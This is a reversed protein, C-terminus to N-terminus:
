SLHTLYHTTVLNLEALAYDHTIPLSSLQQALVQTAESGDGLVARLVGVVVRSMESVCLRHVATECKLNNLRQCLTLLRPRLLELKAATPEGTKKMENVLSCVDLYDAYVAGGSAWNVVNESISPDSLQDLYRHLYEHDENIVASPAITDVILKHARNFNGSKLLYWAEDDMMHLSRAVTAKAEFLWKDPIRLHVTLFEEAEKGGEELSIHRAILQKVEGLRRENDQIHLLIFAAWHWHGESELLAAMVLHLSAADIDSLHHYGLSRLVSWLLWSVYVCLPDNSITWSNLLVELKHTPDTFLKLLHYCVDYGHKVDMGKPLTKNAIYSPLPAECYPEEGSLGCAAEYENLAESITATAPCVYWLHLGFARKWDLGQCTNILTHSAQHTPSSALLSYITLRLISMHADTGGEAWNALQAALYQRPTEDGCAQSLLLALRHDGKEQALMSAQSIQRASLHSFVAKLYAEPDDEQSNKADNVENSVTQSSCCEIWQSVAEVTVRAKVYDSDGDFEPSYFDQNGWLAMCLNFINAVNVEGEELPANESTVYNLHESIQELLNTNSEPQIYPCPHEEADSIEDSSVVSCELFLAIDISHDTLEDCMVREVTLRYRRPNFGHTMKNGFYIREMFNIGPPAPITLTASKVISMVINEGALTNDIQLRDAHNLNGEVGWLINYLTGLFTTPKQTLGIERQVLSEQTNYAEVYGHTTVNGQTYGVISTTQVNVQTPQIQAPRASALPRYGTGKKTTSNHLKSMPSLLPKWRLHDDQTPRPPAKGFFDRITDSALVWKNAYRPIQTSQASPPQPGTNKMAFYTRWIMTQLNDVSAFSALRVRVFEPLGVALAVTDTAAKATLTTVSRQQENLPQTLSISPTIIHENQMLPTSKACPVFGNSFGADPRADLHAIARTGMSVPVTTPTAAAVDAAAAAQAADFTIIKQRGSKNVLDNLEMEKNEMDNIRSIIKPKAFVSSTQATM